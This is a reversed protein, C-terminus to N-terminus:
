FNLSHCQQKISVPNYLASLAVKGTLQTSVKCKNHRQNAPYHTIDTSRSSAHTHLFSRPSRINMFISPGDPQRLLIRAPHQHPLYPYRVSSSFKSYIPSAIINFLFESIFITSGSGKLEHLSSLALLLNVLQQYAISLVGILGCILNNLFNAGKDCTFCQTVISPHLALRHQLFYNLM